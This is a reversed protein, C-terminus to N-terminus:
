PTPTLLPEASLRVAFYLKSKPGVVKALSWSSLNVWKLKELDASLDLIWSFIDKWCHIQFLEGAAVHCSSGSYFVSCFYIIEHGFM